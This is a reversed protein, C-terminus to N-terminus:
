HTQLIFVEKTLTFCGMTTLTQLRGEHWQEFNEFNEGCLSLHSFYHSCNFNHKEFLTHIQQSNKFHDAWSFRYAVGYGVFLTDLISM